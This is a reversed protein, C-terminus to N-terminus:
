NSSPVEWIRVADHAGSAILSGDPSFEVALVQLAHPMRAMMTGSDVEWLLAATVPPHEIGQGLGTVIWQGDPSFALDWMVDPQEMQAILQWTDVEWVPVTGTEGAGSVAAALYRGDSSFVLRNVIGDPPVLQAAETWILTNWLAIPGGSGLGAALLTTDPNFVVNSYATGNYEALLRKEHTNIDWVLARGPGWSGTTMAAMWPGDPSLALSTIRLEHSFEGVIQGSQTDAIVAKGDFSGAAWLHGGSSFDLGYVWYGFDLQAKQEGTNADWLRATHDFSVSAVHNGSPSFKVGRINDAHAGVWVQQWTDTRYVEVKNEPSGIALLGGDPSFALTDGGVAM